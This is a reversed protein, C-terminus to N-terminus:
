IVNMDSQVIKITQRPSSLWAITVNGPKSLLVPLLDSLAVGCSSLLILIVRFDRNSTIYLASNAKSGYKIAVLSIM